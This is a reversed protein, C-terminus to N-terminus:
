KKRPATKGVIELKVKTIGAKRDLDIQNAAAVSLDIVRGKIFPGRDNIRVLVSKGNKLRTVKVLTGFPLTKHAATMDYKDFQEGNATKQPQWYFSAIGELEHNKKTHHANAASTSFIAVGLSVTAFLFGYINM